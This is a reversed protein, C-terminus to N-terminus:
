QFGSRVNAGLLLFISPFYQAINSDFDNETKIVMIRYSMRDQTSLILHELSIIISCGCGRTPDLIQEPLNM